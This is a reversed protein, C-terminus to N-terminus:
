NDCISAANFSSEVRRESATREKPMRSEVNSSTNTFITDERVSLAFLSSGNTCHVVISSFSTHSIASDAVLEFGDLNGVALPTEGVARQMQLLNM